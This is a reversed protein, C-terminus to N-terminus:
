IGLLQAAREYHSRTEGFMAAYWPARRTHLQIDHEDTYGIGAHVQHAATVVRELVEAGWAKVTAAALEADPENRARKWAAANVLVRLTEVDTAADALRHQVAQFTGILVGFQERTKAYAVSVDCAAAAHGLMLASGLVGADIILERIAPAGTGPGAILDGSSLRVGELSVAALPVGPGTELRNRAVGDANADVAFLAISSDDNGDGAHASVLLVDAIAGDAVFSKEGDIRWGDGDRVARTQVSAADFRGAPESLAVAGIADASRLRPTWRQRAADSAGRDIARAVLATSLLPIPASARGLEECLLSADLTSEADAALDVWGLAGSRQWLPEDYFPARKEIEKVHAPACEKQLLTRASERVMRQEDTLRFDM